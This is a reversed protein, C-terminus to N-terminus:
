LHVSFCAMAHKETWKHAATSRAPPESIEDAGRAVRVALGPADIQLEPWRLGPLTGTPTTKKSAALQGALRRTTGM